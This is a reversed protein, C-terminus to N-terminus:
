IEPDSVLASIWKKGDKIELIFNNGEYRLRFREPNDKMYNKCTDWLEIRTFNRYIKSLLVSRM